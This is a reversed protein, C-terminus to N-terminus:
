EQGKPTPPLPMWKTPSAWRGGGDRWEHVYHSENQPEGRMPLRYSAVWCGCGKNWVLVATGDKPATEIPQWDASKDQSARAQWVEFLSAYREHQPIVARGFKSDAWAEFKQQETM